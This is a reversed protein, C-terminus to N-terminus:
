RFGHHYDVAEEDNAEMNVDAFRMKNRDIIDCVSFPVEVKYGM